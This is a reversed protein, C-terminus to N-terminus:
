LSRINEVSKTMKTITMDEDVIDEIDDLLRRFREKSFKLDEM